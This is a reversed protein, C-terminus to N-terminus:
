QPPSLAPTPSMQHARLPAMLQEWCRKALYKCTYCHSWIEKALRRAAIIWMQKRSQMVMSDQSSHDKCHSKLMYLRTLPHSASLVPLYEQNYAVLLHKKACGGVM